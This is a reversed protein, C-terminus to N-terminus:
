DNEHLAADLAAAELTARARDEGAVAIMLNLHCTAAADYGALLGASEVEDLAQARAVPDDALKALEYRALRRQDAAPPENATMTM